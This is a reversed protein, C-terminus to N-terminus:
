VTRNLAQVPGKLRQTLIERCVASFVPCERYVRTGWFREFARIDWYIRADGCLIFFKKM